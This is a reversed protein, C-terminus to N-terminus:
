YLVFQICLLIIRVDPTQNLSTCANDIKINTVDSVHCTVHLSDSQIACKRPFASDAIRSIARLTCVMKRPLPSPSTVLSITMPCPQENHYM